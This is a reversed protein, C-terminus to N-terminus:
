HPYPVVGDPLVIEEGRGSRHHHSGISTQYMGTILASRCPSRVPATVFAHTFLTGEPRSLRRPTDQHTNGTAPFIRRCIM